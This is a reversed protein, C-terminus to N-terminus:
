EIAGLWCLRGKFSTGSRLDDRAAELCILKCSKGEQLSGGGAAAPREIGIRPLASDGTLPEAMFSATDESAKRVDDERVKM